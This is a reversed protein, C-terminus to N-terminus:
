KVLYFLWPIIIKRLSEKSYLGQDYFELNVVFYWGGIKDQLPGSQYQHHFIGCVCAYGM